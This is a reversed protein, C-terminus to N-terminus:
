FLVFPPRVSTNQDKFGSDLLKLVFQFNQGRLLQDQLYPTIQAFLNLASVRHPVSPSNSLRDIYELLGPWHIEPEAEQMDCSLEAILQVMSSRVVPDVDHELGALTEQQLLRIFDASFTQCYFPPEHNDSGTINQRLLEVCFARLIKDDHQRCVSLLAHCIQERQKHITQRMINEAMKRKKHDEERMLTFLLSVFQEEQSM